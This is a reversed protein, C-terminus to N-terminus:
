DVLKPMKKFLTIISLNLFHLYCAFLVPLVHFNIPRPTLCSSSFAVESDPRASWFSVHDSLFHLYDFQSMHLMVFM